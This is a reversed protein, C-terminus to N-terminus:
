LTNSGPAPPEAEPRAPASMVRVKFLLGKSEIRKQMSALEDKSLTAGAHSLEVLIPEIDALLTAIRADGRQAATQRYIRNSVVLEGARQQEASIDLSKKPDANAVEMLMRGTSDLHDTVVFVLIRDTGKTEQEVPLAAPRASVTNTAAIQQQVPRTAEGGGGDRYYRGLFFALALVAAAALASIWTRRKRRDLRWRLRNWVQEGYDDGREPVPMEDVLALVRRLMELQARCEPCTELHPSADADRYHHAVLQEDNLHPM